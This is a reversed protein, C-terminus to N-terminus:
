SGKQDKKIVPIESGKTTYIELTTHSSLTCLTEWIRQGHFIEEGDRTKKLSQHQIFFVSFFPTRIGAGERLGTM